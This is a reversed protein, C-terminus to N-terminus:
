GRELTGGSYILDALYGVARRYWATQSLGGQYETYTRISGVQVSDIKVTGPSAINPLLDTTLAALAFEAVCKKLNEPIVDSGILFGDRDLVQYRPYALAQEERVRRGRWKKLFRIEIHQMARLIAAEKEPDTGTWGANGLAAHYADVYTLDAYTQANALGAGTEVILSM